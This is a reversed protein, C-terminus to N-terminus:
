TILFSIVIIFIVGVIKFATVVFKFATVVFDIIGRWKYEKYNDDYVVYDYKTQTPTGNSISNEEEEDNKDKTSSLKSCKDASKNQEADM